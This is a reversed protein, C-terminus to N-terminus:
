TQRGQIGTGKAGGNLQRRHDGVGGAAAVVARLGAGAGPGRRLCCCCCGAAAAAAAGGGGGALLSHEVENDKRPFICNNGLPIPSTKSYTALISLAVPITMVSNLFPLSGRTPFSPSEYFASM